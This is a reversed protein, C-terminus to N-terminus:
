HGFRGDEPQYDPNKQWDKITPDTQPRPLPHFNKVRDYMENQQDYNLLSMAQALNISARDSFIPDSSNQEALKCWMAAEVINTTILDGSLIAFGLDNQAHDYGHEAADRLLREAEPKDKDVGAQGQILMVALISQAQFYGHATARRLWKVGEIKDQPYAPCYKGPAFGNYYFQFLQFEANGWGNEAAKALWERGADCDLNLDGRFCSWAYQFQAERHGMQAARFMLETGMQLSARNTREELYHIALDYLADPHNKAAAKGYWILSNEADKPVGDGVRYAQGMLFQADTAGLFAAKFRWYRYNALNTETGGYGRFYYGSLTSAALADGLEASKKMWKFSEIMANTDPYKQSYLAGLDYMARRNGGENAARLFWYKAEDENTEVGYGNLLLYGLSKMAVFNTQEASLRYYKAAMSYNPTTGLGYSYCGGLQLQAEADGLAAAQGFWHIAENYNKRVYKGGEFLLGLNMMAPAYGKEASGRLLQLGTDKIEPSGSLVVLTFGWLAQAALNANAIEQRLGNTAQQFDFRGNESYKAPLASRVMAFWNTSFQDDFPHAPIEDDSPVGAHAQCLVLLAFTFVGLGCIMKQMSPHM